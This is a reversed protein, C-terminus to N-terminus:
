VNVMKGNVREFCEFDKKRRVAALRAAEEQKPVVFEGQLNGVGGPCYLEGQRHRQAGIAVAGARTSWGATAGGEEREESAGDGGGGGGRGGGGMRGGGWCGGVRKEMKRRWVTGQQRSGNVKGLWRTGGGGDAQKGGRLEASGDGSGSGGLTESGSSPRGFSASCSASGGLTASGRGSGGAIIPFDDESFIGMGRSEEVGVGAKEGCREGGENSRSRDTM